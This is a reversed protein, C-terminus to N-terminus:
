IKGAERLMGLGASLVGGVILTIATGWELYVGGLASAGGAVQALLPWSPLAPMRLGRVRPRPKVIPVAQTAGDWTVTTV